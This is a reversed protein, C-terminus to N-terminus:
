TWDSAGCAARRGATLARAGKSGTTSQILRPRARVDFIVPRQFWPVMLHTGENFVRAMNVGGIRNFMVARHGGDVNFLCNNAGFYAAGMTGAAATLAAAMGPSPMSPGGGGGGGGSMLPRLRSMLNRLAEM